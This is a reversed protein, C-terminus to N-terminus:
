FADLGQNEFDEIRLVAFPSAAAMAGPRADALRKGYQSLLITFDVSDVDGNFSFDGESFRRSTDGFNGALSNFDTTDVSSDQNADAQLFSFDFTVDDTMQNDFLDRINASNVILRFNGDAPVGNPRDFTISATNPATMTLTLQNVPIAVLTARDILTFSGTLQNSLFLGPMAESFIVKVSPPAGVDDFVFQSQSVTPPTSDNNGTYNAGGPTLVANDPLNSSSAQNSYVLSAAGGAADLRGFYWSSASQPSVRTRIRTASQPMTADLMLQATTYVVGTHQTTPSFNQWGVADLVVAGEPLSLTGPSIGTDYDVQPTIPVPSYILAWTQADNELADNGQSLATAELVNTAPDQINFGNASKILLLGNSGVASSGLNFVRDAMGAGGIDANNDGEFQVLHTNFLPTSSGIAGRLEISEYPTDLGGPPDIHLENILLGAPATTDNDIITITHTAVTAITANAAASLSLSFREANEPDSDNTIAVPIVKSTENVAFSVTQNVTEFDGGAAEGAISNLLVQSAVTTNGTRTITVNISGASENMQASASSFQIVPLQLAQISISDIGIMEDAGVADATIIRLQVQPQNLCAPPLAFNVPTLKTAEGGNGAANLTFAAPINTFAGTTGVRYQVAVSQTASTEQSDIDRLTFSAAAGTVNQTNLYIVLHPAPAASTPQLAIVPDSLHFEYVGGALSNGPDLQNAIVGAAAGAANLSLITQPDTGPSISGFSAPITSGDFGEISPVNAWQTQPTILSIPSWNRSLDASELAFYNANFIIRPELTDFRCRSMVFRAVKLRAPHHASM